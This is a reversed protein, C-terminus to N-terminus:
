ECAVLSEEVLAFPPKAILYFHDGAVVCERFGGRTLEPWPRRDADADADGAITTVPCSLVPESRHGYAHFMRADGRVYPLVLERFFPDNALESDTGGLGVLRLSLTDDDADTYEAPDPLPANRSGSAFLHALRVGRQELCRATELAVVAGMSHGFLALPGDAVSAVAGAIEGALRRLDTPSPEDIRESRGPYRVALVQTGPLHNGWDRFFSASGGAHPFCILRQRPEPCEVAAELWLHANSTM